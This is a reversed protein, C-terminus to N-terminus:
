SARDASVSAPSGIHAPIVFAAVALMGAMVRIIAPFKIRLGRRYTPLHSIFMTIQIATYFATMDAVNRRIEVGNNTLVVM